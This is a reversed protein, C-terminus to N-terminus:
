LFGEALFLFLTKYIVKLKQIVRFSANKWKIVSGLEDELRLLLFDSEYKEQVLLEKLKDLEERQKQLSSFLESFYCDEM